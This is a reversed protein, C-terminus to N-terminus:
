FEPTYGKPVELKNVVEDNLFHNWAVSTLNVLESASLNKYPDLNAKIILNRLLVIPTDLEGKSFYGSKLTEYFYDAKELNTIKSLFFMSIYRPNNIKVSKNKYRISECKSIHETLGKFSNYLEFINQNDVITYGLYNLNSKNGIPTRHLSHRSYFRNMKFHFLSKVVGSAVNPYIIDHSKLIDSSTRKNGIDITNYANTELGRVVLFKCAIGSDIVAKLRHQGDVLFDDMNFCIPEGNFVWRGTRMYHTILRVNAQDIDRNKANYKSLIEKAIKPTITIIGFDSGVYEKNKITNITNDVMNLSSLLEHLNDKKVEKITQNM